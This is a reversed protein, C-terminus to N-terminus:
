PKMLNNSEGYFMGMQWFAIDDHVAFAVLLPHNRKPHIGAFEQKPIERATRPTSRSVPNEEHGIQLRDSIGCEPLHEALQFLTGTDGPKAGM